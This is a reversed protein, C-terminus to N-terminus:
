AQGPERPKGATVGGDIDDGADFEGADSPRGDFQPVVEDNGTCAVVLLLSCLLSVRIM